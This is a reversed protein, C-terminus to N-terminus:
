TGGLCGARSSKGRSPLVIAAIRLSGSASSELVLLWVALCVTYLATDLSTNTESIRDSTHLVSRLTEAVVIEVIACSEGRRRVAVHSAWSVGGLDTTVSVIEADVVSAVESDVCGRGSLLGVEWARPCILTAVIVVDVINTSQEPLVNKGVVISGCAAQGETSM